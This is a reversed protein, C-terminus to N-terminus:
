VLVFSGHLDDSQEALMKGIELATHWSMGTEDPTASDESYMRARSQVRSLSRPTSRDEEEDLFHAHVLRFKKEAIEVKAAALAKGIEVLRDKDYVSLLARRIPKRNSM